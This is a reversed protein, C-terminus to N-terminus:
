KRTTEKAKAYSCYDTGRFAGDFTHNSQCTGYGAADKFPKFYKCDKCFIFEEQFKIAKFLGEDSMHEM